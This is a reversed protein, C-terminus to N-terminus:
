YFPNTFFALDNPALAFDAHDAFDIRFVFLHLALHCTNGADIQRTLLAYFDRERPRRDTPGCKWRFAWSSVLWM